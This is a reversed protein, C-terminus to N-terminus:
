LSYLIYSYNQCKDNKCLQSIQNNITSLVLRTADELTTKTFKANKQKLIQSYVLNMSVYGFRQFSFSCKFLKQRYDLTNM